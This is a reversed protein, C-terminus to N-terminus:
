SEQDGLWGLARIEGTEGGVAQAARDIAKHLEGAIQWGDGARPLHLKCVFAVDFHEEHQWPSVAKRPPGPSREAAAVWHLVDDKHWMPRGDHSRPRPFDSRNKTWQNVRQRSVGAIRAIDAQSVLEEEPRRVPVAVEMIEAAVEEAQSDALDELDDTPVYSLVSEIADALRRRCDKLSDGQAYAGRVAPCFGLWYGDPGRQYLTGLHLKESM